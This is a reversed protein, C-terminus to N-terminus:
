VPTCKGCHKSFDKSQCDVCEEEPEKKNVEAQLLLALTYNGSARLRPIAIRVLRNIESKM